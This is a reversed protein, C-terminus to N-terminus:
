LMTGLMALLPPPPPEVKEDNVDAALPTLLPVPVVEVTLTPPLVMLTLKSLMRDPPWIDADCTDGALM